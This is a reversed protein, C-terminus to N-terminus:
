NRSPLEVAARQRPARKGAGTEARMTKFNNLFNDDTPARITYAKKAEALVAKSSAPSLMQQSSGALRADTNSRVTGSQM